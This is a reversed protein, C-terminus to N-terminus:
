KSDAVPRLRTLLRDYFNLRCLGASETPALIKLTHPAAALLATEHHVADRTRRALNHSKGSPQHPLTGGVFDQKIAM